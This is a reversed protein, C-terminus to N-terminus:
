KTKFEKFCFDTDYTQAKYAKCVGRRRIGIDNHWKSCRKCATSPNEIAREIWAVVRETNAQLDM